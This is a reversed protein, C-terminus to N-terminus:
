TTVKIEILTCLINVKKESSNLIIALFTIMLISAASESISEDVVRILEHVWQSGSGCAVVGYGGIRSLLSCSKCFFLRQCKPSHCSGEREKAEAESRLAMNVTIIIMLLSLQIRLFSILGAM